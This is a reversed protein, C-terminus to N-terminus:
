KNFYTISYSSVSYTTEGTDNKIVITTSDIVKLYVYSYIKGTLTATYYWYTFGFADSHVMYVTLELPDTETTPVFVSTKGKHDKPVNYDATLRDNPHLRKRTFDSFAMRKEKPSLYYQERSIEQEDKYCYEVHSAQSKRKGEYVFSVQYILEFEDSDDSCGGITPMFSLMICMIGILASKIIRM